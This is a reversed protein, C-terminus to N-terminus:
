FLKLNIANTYKSYNNKEFGHKKQRQVLIRGKSRLRSIRLLINSVRHFDGFIGPYLKESVHLFITEEIFM